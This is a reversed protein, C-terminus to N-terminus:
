ITILQHSNCQMQFAEYRETKDTQKNTTTKKLSRQPRLFVRLTKQSSCCEEIMVLKKVRIHAHALPQFCRSKSLNKSKIDVTFLLNNYLLSLAGETFPCLWLARNELTIVHWQLLIKGAAQSRNEAFRFINPATRSATQYKEPWCNETLKAKHNSAATNLCLEIM